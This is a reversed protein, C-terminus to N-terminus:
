SPKAYPLSALEHTSHYTDLGSVTVVGLKELRVTGDPRIVSDPIILEIIRGVVLTTSNAKIKHIEELQMGLKVPSEQVYPAPHVASYEPTLGAADIESDKKDYRASTHHAKEYFDATVHNITFYGTQLINEYTHRPVSAPRVNFGLLPPNAGIHHISSFIALNTTSNEDATGILNASKFGSISNVLNRRYFKELQGIEKASLVSVSM